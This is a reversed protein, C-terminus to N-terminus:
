RARQSLWREVLEEYEAPWPETGIWGFPQNPAPRPEPVPVGDTPAGAGSEVTVSRGSMMGASGRGSWGDAGSGDSEAGPAGSAREAAPEAASNPQELRERERSSLGRELAAWETEAHAREAPDVAAALRERVQRARELRAVAVAEGVEVDAADSPDSAASDPLAGSAVAPGAASTADPAAQSDAMLVLALAILPGSLFAPSPARTPLAGATLAVARQALLEAMSTRPVPQEWATAIVGNAALGRDMRLASARPSPRREGFFAAGGFGGAVLAVWTLVPDGLDVGEVRAAALATLAASAAIAFAELGAIALGRRHFSDVRRALEDASM